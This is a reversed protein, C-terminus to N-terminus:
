WRARRVPPVGHVRLGSGNEDGACGAVEPLGHGAGKRRATVVQHQEVAVALRQPAHVAGVGFHQAAGLEVQEVGGLHLLRHGMGRLAEATHVHQAVQRTAEAHALGHVVGGRLRQVEQEVQVHARQHGDRGAHHRSITVTPAM